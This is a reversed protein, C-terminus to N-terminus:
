APVYEDDGSTSPDGASEADPEAPPADAFEDGVAPEGDDQRRFEPM